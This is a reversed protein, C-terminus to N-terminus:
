AKNGFIGKLIEAANGAMGAIDSTSMNNLSQPNQQMNSQNGGKLINTLVSAGGTAALVKIISAVDIGSGSANAQASKGQQMAAIVKVISAIDLGGANASSTNAKNGGLIAGLVSTFDM